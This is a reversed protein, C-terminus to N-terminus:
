LVQIPDAGPPVTTVVVADAGAASLADVLPQVMTRATAAVTVVMRDPGAEAPVGYGFAADIATWPTLRDIQARVVGGLFETARKPLELPRFLFRSPRLVLEARSGRLLAAVNGSHDDAILAREFPPGSPTAGTGSQFVFSGDDEESVQVRKRTGLSSLAGVILAAVSDIWRTLYGTVDSLNSM